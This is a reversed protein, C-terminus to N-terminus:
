DRPAAFLTPHDSCVLLGGVGDPRPVRLLPPPPPPPVVPRQGGHGAGAALVAEFGSPLAKGSAYGKIPKGPKSALLGVERRSCAIKSWAVARCHRRPHSSRRITVVVAIM